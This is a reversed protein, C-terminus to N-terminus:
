RAGAMVGEAAREFARAVDERDRVVRTEWFLLGLTPEIGLHDCVAARAAHAAQPDPAVAALAGEADFAVAGPDLPSVVQGDGDRAIAGPSWGRRVLTAAGTLTAAVANTRDAHM